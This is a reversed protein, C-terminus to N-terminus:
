WLTNKSRISYKCLIKTSNICILYGDKTFYVQRVLHLDDLLTQTFNDRFQKITCFVACIRSYFIAFSM